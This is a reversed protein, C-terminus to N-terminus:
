GVAFVRFWRICMMVPICCAWGTGIGKCGNVLVMPVVPAYFLPEHDTTPLIPDDDIHFIDRTIPSLKYLHRGSAHDKGRLRTGFQGNDQLLPLNNAGRFHQAMHIIAQVLSAEGHHYDTHESVYGALQNVKIENTLNRKLCAFLIKRQSPKLGDMLNAISRVNDALSHM